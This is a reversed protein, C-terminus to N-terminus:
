PNEKALRKTIHEFTHRGWASDKDPGLLMLLLVKDKAHVLGFTVDFLYSVISGDNRRYNNSGIAPIALYTDDEYFENGLRIPADVFQLEEGEPSVVNIDFRTAAISNVINARLGEIDAKMAQSILTFQDSQVVLSDDMVQLLLIPTLDQWSVTAGDTRTTTGAYVACLNRDCESALLSAVAPGRGYLCFIALICLASRSFSFLTM